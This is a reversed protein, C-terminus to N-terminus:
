IGRRGCPAPSGADLGLGRGTFPTRTRRFPPPSSPWKPMGGPTRAPFRTAMVLGIIEGEKEAVLALHPLYGEGAQLRDTFNSEDGDSIEAPAFAIRIFNHIVHFDAPNEERIKM